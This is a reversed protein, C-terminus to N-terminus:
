FRRKLSQLQTTTMQLNSSACYINDKWPLPIVFQSDIVRVKAKVFDLVRKGEPSLALNLAFEDNYLRNLQQLINPDERSLCNVSFHFRQKGGTPGLITWGLPTKPQKRAGLRQNLVWHADPVDCGVLIAACKRPIYTIALDDLHAYRRTLAVRSEVNVSPMISPVVFAKEINVWTSDLLSGIELKELCSESLCTDSITKITLQSPHPPIGLKQLVDHSVM